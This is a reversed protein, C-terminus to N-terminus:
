KSTLRLCLPPSFELLCEVYNDSYTSAPKDKAAQTDAAFSASSAMIAVMFVTLKLLAKKM